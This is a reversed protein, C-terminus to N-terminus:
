THMFEEHLRQNDAQALNLMDINHQERLKLEQILLNANYQKSMSDEQIDRLNRKLNAINNKQLVYLIALIIVVGLMAYTTITPQDLLIEM